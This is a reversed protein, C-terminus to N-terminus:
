LIIVCWDCDPSPAWVSLVCAKPGPQDGSIKLLYIWHRADMLPLTHDGPIMKQHMAARPAGWSSALVYLIDLLARWFTYTSLYPSSWFLSRQRPRLAISSGLQLSKTLEPRQPLYWRAEWTAQQPTPQQPEVATTLHFLCLSWLSAMNCLSRCWVRILDHFFVAWTHM